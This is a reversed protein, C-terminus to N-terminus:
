VSTVGDALQVKKIVGQVSSAAYGVFAPNNMYIYKLEADAPLDNLSVSTTQANTGNSIKTEYTDDTYYSRSLTGGGGAGAGDRIMEMFFDSGENDAMYSNTPDWAPADQTPFGDGNSESLADLHQRWYLGLFDENWQNNSNQSSMGWFGISDYDSFNTPNFQLRLVWKDQLYDGDIYSSIDKYIIPTSATTLKFDFVKTSANWANNGTDATATWEPDTQMDTEYDWGGTAGGGFSVGTNNKGFIVNAGTASGYITM